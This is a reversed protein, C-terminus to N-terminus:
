AAWRGSKRMENKVKMAINARRNELILKLIRAWILFLTALSGQDMINFFFFFSIIANNLSIRMGCLKSM